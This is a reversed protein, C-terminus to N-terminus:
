SIQKTIRAAPVNLFADDRMTLFCYLFVDELLLFSLVIYNTSM